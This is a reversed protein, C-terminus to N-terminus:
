LGMAVEFAREKLLTGSSGFMASDLAKEEDASREHDVFVVAAVVL